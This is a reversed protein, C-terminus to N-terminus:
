VFIAELISLAAFIQELIVKLEQYKGAVLHKCSYLYRTVAMENITQEFLSLYVPRTNFHHLDQFKNGLLPFM